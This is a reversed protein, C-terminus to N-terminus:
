ESFLSPETEISNSSDFISLQVEPEKYYVDFALEKEILRDVFSLKISEEERTMVSFNHNKNFYKLPKHFNDVFKKHENIRNEVYKQSYANTKTSINKHITSRLTPDIEIGISNRESAISALTTTGTGLYPDLITDGKVSFMNILRYPIEFPYAASRDRSEHNNLKQFTGQLNWLDNFWVNREEWFFSSERRNKKEESTHFERKRGKRFILIWEHELTVYAGPPMMGSGMFKNPANTVKRWLINPLNSHGIGVFFEIIKQHNPYLKFNGDISRTADGINICSIGGPILVRDIESWVKNLENHMLKFADSGKNEQISKGIKENQLSFIEDWMKVMPYPPSTVVLHVSNDDINSMSSANYLEIRHTTSKM